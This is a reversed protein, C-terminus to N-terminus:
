IHASFNSFKQFNDNAATGEAALEKIESENTTTKGSTLGSLLVGVKELQRGLSYRDEVFRRYRVPEYSGGLLKECFEGPDNFVYESGFMEIAGPYNHILPKLGCAMAEIISVPNGEIISSCVIYHKDDLWSSIDRQYGEFIVSGALAMSRIMYDMYQKLVPDFSAGAIHLTYRSDRKLLEKMCELLLMPNKVLRLNGVYAIDYGRSRENFRFRAIDVGNNVTLINTKAVAPATDLLYSKVYPNGVLILTDINAWNVANPMQTYAEYRHLRVVTKCVKPANSGIVALDTCWEFWSIDSWAMLEYLQLKTDGVFLRVNYRLRCYECIDSLFTEGDAGCFFALNKKSPDPRDYLDISNFVSGANKKHIQRIKRYCQVSNKLEGLSYHLQGAEALLKTNECDAAILKMIDELRRIIDKRFKNKDNIM